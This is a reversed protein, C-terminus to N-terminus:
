IPCYHSCIQWKQTTLLVFTMWTKISFITCHHNTCNIGPNVTFRPLCLAPSDASLRPRRSCSLISRQYAPLHKATAPTVRPRQWPLYWMKVGFHEVAPLHPLSPLKTLFSSLPSLPWFLSLPHHSSILLLPFLNTWKTIWWLLIELSPSLMVLLAM